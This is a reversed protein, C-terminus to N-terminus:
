KLLLCNVTLVCRTETKCVLKLHVRSDVFRVIQSKVMPVAVLNVNVGDLVNVHLLNGVPSSLFLTSM